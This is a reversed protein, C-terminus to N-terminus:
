MLSGFFAQILFGWNEGLWISVPCFLGSMLALLITQIDTKDLWFGQALRMKKKWIVYKTLQTSPFRM